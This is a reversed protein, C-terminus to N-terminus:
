RGLLGGSGSLRAGAGGGAAAGATVTKATQPSSAGEAGAGLLSSLAHSLTSALPPAPLEPVSYPRPGNNVM